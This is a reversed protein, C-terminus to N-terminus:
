PQLLAREVAAAIAPDRLDPWPSASVFRAPTELQFRVALLSTGAAAALRGAWSAVQAADTGFTRAGVVTVIADDDDPRAPEAVVPIDLQVALRRWQLPRWAPGAMCAPTPANLVPCRLSSLWALLFANSEAACFARDAAAIHTLEREFVWPRRTLVGHIATEPVPRGAIVATSTGPCGAYYRWGPAALDECTLLAAGHGRWRAALEQAGADHRAAVIVLM